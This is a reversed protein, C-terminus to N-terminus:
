QNAVSFTLTSSFLPGGANTLYGSYTQYSRNAPTTLGALVLNVVSGVAPTLTIQDFVVDVVGSVALITKEIDSIKVLGNFPVLTMYSDLADIVSTQIVSNYQGNYYVIANVQLIDAVATIIQPIQGAPLISSLYAGLEIVEPGSLPTQSGAVGKAVKVSLSGGASVGVAASTIIQKSPDITPYGFTFDTNIQVTDGAQFKLVQAQIWAVTGSVASAVSAEIQTQLITFRQEMLNQSVAVIFTWLQWYAAQSTSTLSPILTNVQAKIQAQITQYTRAIYSM